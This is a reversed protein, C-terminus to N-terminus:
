AGLTAAKTTPQGYEKTALSRLQKRKLYAKKMESAGQVQTAPPNFSYSPEARSPSPLSIGGGSPKNFAQSLMYGGVSGALLYGWVPDSMTEVESFM